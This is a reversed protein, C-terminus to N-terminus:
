GRRILGQARELVSAMIRDLAARDEAELADLIYAERAAVLPACGRRLELRSAPIGRQGPRAAL